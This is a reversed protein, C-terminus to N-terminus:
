VVVEDIGAPIMQYERLAEIINAARNYGINLHRQVLSISVKKHQIIAELGKTLLPDVETGGCEPPPTADSPEHVPLPAAAARKEAERRLKAAHMWKPMPADNERLPMVVGVFNPAYSSTFVIGQGTTKQRTTIAVHKDGTGITLANSMASIYEPNLSAHLCPPGDTFEVVRSWDPFKGPVEWKGPEPQIHLELEDKIVALRDDRLVLRKTDAGACAAKLKPGIKLIAPRDIQGTEDLWAGLAHGNTAVLLVGGAHGPEAYVGNLYYRIDNHAKFQAIAAVLRAQINLNM